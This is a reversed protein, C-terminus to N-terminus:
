DNLIVDPLVTNCRAEWESIVQSRNKREEAEVHAYLDRIIQVPVDFFFKDGNFEIINM